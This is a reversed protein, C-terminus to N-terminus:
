YSIDRTILLEPSAYLPFVQDSLFDSERDTYSIRVKLPSLRNKRADYTDHWSKEEPEDSILLDFEKVALSAQLDNWGYYSFKAARLNEKIVVEHQWNIREPQWVLVPNSNAPYESYVLKNTGNSQRKFELKVFVLGSSFLAGETILIVREQNGSFAIHPLGTKDKQNIIYPVMGQFVETLKAQM